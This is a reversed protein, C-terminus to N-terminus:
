RTWLHVNYFRSAPTVLMVPEIGEITGRTVYLFQPYLLPASPALEEWREQFQRYLDTRVVVDNTTRAAAMLEDAIVDQFNALNLGATGLQSSHWGTYPDPDAGQDWAILAADYRRERLYDRALVLFTTSAVTARLGLEELQQAVMGAMATRQPDNDTRITFRFEIGERTRVGTQPDLVWGAEDLLAAAAAVDRATDDYQSAYAWSSPPIVSTSVTALGAVQADALAQRDIALSVAKRVRADAFLAQSNNLYVILDVPREYVTLSIGDMAELESLRQQTLPERVM